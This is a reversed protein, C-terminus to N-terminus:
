AQFSRIAEDESHFVELVSDLKTRRLLKQLRDSPNLLKLQGGRQRLRTHRRIVEGLGSSDIYPLFSLDIIFNIHGQSTLSDITGCVTKWNEWSERFQLNEPRSYEIGARRLVFPKEAPLFSIIVVGDRVTSEVSQTQKALKQLLAEMEKVAQLDGNKQAIPIGAQFATRAASFSRSRFLAYGLHRYAASHGPDLEVVKRFAESAESFLQASLYQSGLGYWALADSPNHEVLEKFEELRNDKM